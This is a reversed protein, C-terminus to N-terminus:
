GRVALWLGACGTVFIYVSDLDQVGLGLGICWYWGECVWGWGYVCTGVGDLLTCGIEVGCVWDWDRVGLGLVTCWNITEREPRSINFRGKRGDTRGNTVNRKRMTVRLCM